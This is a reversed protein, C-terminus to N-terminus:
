CRKRFTGVSTVVKVGDRGNDNYIYNRTLANVRAARGTQFQVRKGPKVVKRVRFPEYSYPRYTSGVSLVTIAKRRNNKIITREPNSYCSLIIRVGSAAEAAAPPAAGLATFAMVAAVAFPAVSRRRRM